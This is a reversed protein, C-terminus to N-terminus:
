SSRRAFPQGRFGRRGPPTIGIQTYGKALWRGIMEVEQGIREIEPQM